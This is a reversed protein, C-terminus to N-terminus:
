LQVARIPKLRFWMTTHSPSDQRSDNFLMMIQPTSNVSGINQAVVSLQAPWMRYLSRNYGVEARRHRSDHCQRWGGLVKAM